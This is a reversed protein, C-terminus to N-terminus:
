DESGSIKACLNKISKELDCIIKAIAFLFYDTFGYLRIDKAASFIVAFIITIIM